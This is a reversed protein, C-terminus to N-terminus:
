GVRVRPKGRRKLRGSAGYVNDRPDPDELGNEVAGGVFVADSSELEELPTSTGTCSCAYAPDATLTSQLILVAALAFVLFGLRTKALGM